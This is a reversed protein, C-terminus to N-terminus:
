TLVSPDLPRLAVRYHCARYITEFERYATELDDNVVVFDYSPLAKLEKIANGLRVALTKPSETGRAELRERLVELSPTVVYIFNAETGFERRLAEGGQVDVDLLLEDGRELVAMAADRSTGYRSTHIHAWELFEGAEVMADFTEESVFHYHVGDIEGERPPRTTTSVSFSLAPNAAMLRRILTTKGAGSPATVVFIMQRNM